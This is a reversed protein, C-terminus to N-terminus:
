CILRSVSLRRASKEPRYRHRKHFPSGFRSSAPYRPYLEFEQRASKCLEKLKKILEPIFKQDEIVALFTNNEAVSGIMM